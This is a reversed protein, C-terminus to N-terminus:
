WISNQKVRTHINKSTVKEVMGKEGLLVNKKQNTIVNSLNDTNTPNASSVVSVNRVHQSGVLSDTKACSEVVGGPSYETEM